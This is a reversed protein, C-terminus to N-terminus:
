GILHSVVNSGAKKRINTRYKEVTNVSLHLIEAEEKTRFGLFSLILINRESETLDPYDTKIKEKAMPYSAEFEAIIRELKDNERTKYLEMVRQQLTQLSHQSASEFEFELKRYAKEQRLFEIEKNKRYRNSLWLVVLLAVLSLALLLYLRYRKTQQENQLQMMEIKKDYENKVQEVAKPQKEYAQTMEIYRGVYELAKEQNGLAEYSRYLNYFLEANVRNPVIEIHLAKMFDLQKEAYYACSDYQGLRYYSRELQSFLGDKFRFMPAQYLALGQHCESIAKQLLQRGEEENEYDQNDFQCMWLTSMSYHYYAINEAKGMNRAAELGQEFYMQCSDYEKLALYANGLMFASNFQNKYEQKESFYTDVSKLVRLGEKYYDNDLYCMGLRMQIKYRYNDIWEQESAGKGSYCLLREDVHRCQEISQFAKLLWDLKTQEGKGEKFAIRSLAECTQAEYWKDNGGVFYNEAVKLLSDTISNYLFLADQTWVKLLCYHAREKESLADVNLTDLVQIISDLKQLFCGELQYLTEEQPPPVVPKKACAVMLLLLLGIICCNTKM